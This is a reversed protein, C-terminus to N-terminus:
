IPLSLLASGRQVIRYGVEEVKPVDARDSMRKLLSRAAKAGLEDADIEVTCLGPPLLQGLEQGGFGVIGIEQPIRVGANLCYLMAGLALIDSAFFAAGPKPESELLRRVAVAGHAYDGPWPVDLVTRGLRGAENMAAEFGAAREDVYYSTGKLAGIFVISEYGARLLAQTMDRAAKRNSYGVAIDVIDGPLGLVQIIPIESQALVDLGETSNLEGVIAIGDPQRGLLAAIVDAERAGSRETNGLLLQYQEAGLERTM